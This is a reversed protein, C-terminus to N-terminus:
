FTGGDIVNSAVMASGNWQILDGAVAPTIYAMQKSANIYSFRIASTSSSDSIGNITTASSITVASGTDSISGAVLRRNADVRPVVSTAPNADAFTALRYHTSGDVGAYWYDGTSNWLMSGYIDSAATTDRVIIGGDAVTGAANLEIINDGIAVTTSDITTTTGSVTLNGAVTVDNGNFVTGEINVNANTSSISLDGTGTQTITQAGAGDLTINGALNTTGGLDLNGPVTVNNGDFTSGEVLVIGGTASIALNGTSNTINQHSAGDFTLDGELNINGPIDIDDGFSSSPTSITGPISTNGDNDVLVGNVEVTGNTSSIVLNGTAGTHTINQAGGGDLIIDGAVNLTSNLDTAGTVGLTGALTTNGTVSANGTVAADGGVNLNSSATVDGTISTTGAVGLNGTISANAAASLDGTITATGTVSLAGGITADSSLSITDGTLADVYINLWRKSTSGLDYTSDLDPVIDSTIEGGFTVTDTDADGININGGLVINGTINANGSLSLNAATLDGTATLNGGLTINNAVSLDGNDTGSNAVISLNGTLQDITVNAIHNGEINGTFDLTQNGAHNLRILAQSATSYFPLGTLPSNTSIDPASTGEYIKGIITSTGTGSTGTMTLFPGTLDSIVGTALLLEGSTSAAGALNAIPGRRLLIKQAM